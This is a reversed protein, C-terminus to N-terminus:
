LCYRTYKIFFLSFEGCIVHLTYNTILPLLDQVSEEKAKLADIFREGNEMIIEM